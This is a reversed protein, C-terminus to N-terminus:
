LIKLTFLYDFIIEKISGCVYSKSFRKELYVAPDEAMLRFQSARQKAKVELRSQAILQSKSNIDSWIDSSIDYKLSCNRCAPITYAIKRRKMMAIPM